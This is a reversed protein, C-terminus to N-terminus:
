VNVIIWVLMRTDDPMVLRPRDVIAQYPARDSLLGTKISM